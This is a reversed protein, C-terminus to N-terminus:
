EILYSLQDLMLPIDGEAIGAALLHRRDRNFQEKFLSFNGNEKANVAQRYFDLAQRHDGLAWETHGANLFDHIGPLARSLIKQYYNRAQDLRGTLFSCWAIARWIKPNTADLYDAKFYYKLAEHYDKLALYCHGIHLSMDDPFFEEHRRYYVLAEAPQKLSRYCGAIRRLLWKSKPNLDNAQLYAELAGEIHGMGQLCYGIKQFLMEDDEMGGTLSAYITYADELHNKKLYYSAIALLTEEDALYPQLIPLNHFDFPWVFIDDFDRSLPFLKFFRYLDQIYQGAIVEFRKPKDIWEEHQQETIEDMQHNFQKIITNQAERPLQKMCFYFSYKDSNCMFSITKIQELISNPGDEGGPNNFLSHKTTFPLFWNTMEHFFPFNKLHIFTVHMIDAGEQQLENFEEIRKEITQDALQYSWEPNQEDPLELGIEEPTKGENFKPSFRIMEPIIEERLKRTIEETDRALIFRLTIIRLRQGFGPEEALLELRESIQPYLATRERYAYLTLLIGILARMHVEEDVSLLVADFLLLLKEKDFGAQLALTLASAVQCGATFPLDCATWIKRVAASQAPTFRDSIWIKRFLSILEKEYVEPRNNQYCASLHECVEDEIQKEEPLQMTRRLCYFYSASVAFLLRHKLHDALEYAAVLINRYIQEQMPDAVGEMRYHLLNKYTDQMERLKERFIYLQGDSILSQLANFANKLEKGDLAAVVRDYVQYIEEQKM